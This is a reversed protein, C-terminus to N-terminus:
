LGKGLETVVSDQMQDSEWDFGGRESYQEPDLKKRKTAKKERVVGRKVEVTTQEESDRKVFSHGSVYNHQLSQAMFGRLSAILKGVMTNRWYPIDNDPNMGNMLAARKQTMSSILTKLEDTVYPKYKDKITLTGNNFQYADYLSTVMMHWARNMGATRALKSLGANKFARKLQKKTYFGAPVVTNGNETYGNYFRVNHYHAALLIQNSFYDFLSFIGMGLGAYM